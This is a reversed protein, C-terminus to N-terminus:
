VYVHGLIDYAHECGSFSARERPAIQAAIVRWPITEGLPLEAFARLGVSLPCRPKIEYSGACRSSM